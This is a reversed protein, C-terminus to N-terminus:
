ALRLITCPVIGRLSNSPAMNPASAESSNMTQGALLSPNSGFNFYEHQQQHPMPVSINSGMPPTKKKSNNINTPTSPTTNSANDLVCTSSILGMSLKPVSMSQPLLQSKSSAQSTTMTTFRMLNQLENGSSEFTDQFSDAAAVNQHRSTNTNKATLKNLKTNVNHSFMRTNNEM